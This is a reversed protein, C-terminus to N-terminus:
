NVNGSCFTLLNLGSIKESCLLGDRFDAFRIFCHFLRGVFSNRFICTTSKGVALLGHSAFFHQIPDLRLSQVGMCANADKTQKGANIFTWPNGSLRLINDAHDM